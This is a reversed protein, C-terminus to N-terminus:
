VKLQSLSNILGSAKKLLEVLQNAKEICEDFGVTEIKIKVNIDSNM